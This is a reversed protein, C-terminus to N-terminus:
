RTWGQKKIFRSVASQTLGLTIAIEHQTQGALWLGEIEDGRAATAGRIAGHDIGQKRLSHLITTHDRGGFIRGLQPLSLSPYEIKLELILADRAAVLRRTRGNGVIEDFNMGLAGCRRRLFSVPSLSIEGMAVRMDVVHADFHTEM